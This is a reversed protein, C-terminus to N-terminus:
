SVEVLQWDVFRHSLRWTGQQKLMTDTYMGTAKLAGEPKESYDFFHFASIVTATNANIELSTPVAVHRTQSDPGTVKDAWRQEAGARIVDAGEAIHAGKLEWVADKTFLAMYDDIPGSDAMDALRVVLECLAVEDKTKLGDTIM